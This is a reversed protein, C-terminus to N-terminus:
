ARWGTRAAKEIENTPPQWAAMASTRASRAPSCTHLRCCSGSAPNSPTCHHAGHLRARRHTITGHRPEYFRCLLNVITSKGGGTPGVLAITEGRRVKLTFDKLVPKEDEYYFDVHDFEIDGHITGPDIAGPRDRVEPVADILSFMREASAISHQMEAYVRALDQIPWMMFTIYSVFAQIGGITLLGVQAQLGGYWVIGGLAFASIIQVTPLFLASLWAARYSSRYMQGTLQGFERLNEDERGLAKVVRVGTINENYAGTIKSNFSACM